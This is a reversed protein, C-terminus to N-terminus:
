SRILWNNQVNVIIIHSTEKDEATSPLSWWDPLHEAECGQPEARWFSDSACTPWAEGLWPQVQLELLWKLTLIYVHLLLLFQAGQGKTVVVWCVSRLREWFPLVYPTHESMRLNQVAITIVLIIPALRLLGWMTRWISIKTLTRTWTHECEM